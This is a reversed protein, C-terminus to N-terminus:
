AIVDKPNFGYQNEGSKGDQLMLLLFMINWLPILAILVGWGSRGIDHLRRVSVAVSPILVFVAYVVSLNSWTFYLSVGIIINFLTYHWFEERGARGDFAAYNKLVEFYWNM